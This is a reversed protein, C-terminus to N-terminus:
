TRKDYIDKTIGMVTVDAFGDYRLFDQKLCGECLFGSKEYAKIASYNDTFVTLYVRNLKLHTFAYKLTLKTAAHGYGKGLYDKQGIFVGFEAKNSQRDINKLFATGIDMLRNENNVSIIFQVVKGKEVYEHFYNIHTEATIESQSYLNKKVFPTNRWKVIMATDELTM